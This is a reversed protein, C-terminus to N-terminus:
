CSICNSSEREMRAVGQAHVPLLPAGTVQRGTITILYMPDNAIFTRYRRFSGDSTQILYERGRFRPLLDVSKDSVLTGKTGSVARDRAAEVLEDAHRDSGATMPNAGIVYIPNTLNLIFNFQPKGNKM